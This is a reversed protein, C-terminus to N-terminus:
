CTDVHQAPHRTSPAHSSVVEVMVVLADVAPTQEGRAGAAQQQEGHGAGGVGPRAPGGARLGAGGGREAGTGGRQGTGGAGGRDGRAGRQHVGVQVVVGDHGVAVAIGAQGEGRHARGAEVDGREGIV